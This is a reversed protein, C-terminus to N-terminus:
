DRKELNEIKDVKRNKIKDTIFTLILSILDRLKTTEYIAYMAQNLGYIATTVTIIYEVTFSKIILLYIISATLSFGISIALYIPKRKEKEIKSFVNAYKLVGLIVIGILAILALQWGYNAAFTIIGEM